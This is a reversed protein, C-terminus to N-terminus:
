RVAKMAERHNNRDDGRGTPGHLRKKEQIIEEGVPSIGQIHENIRKRKMRMQQGAERIKREPQQHQRETPRTVKREQIIEEGSM